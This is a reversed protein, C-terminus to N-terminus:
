RDIARRLLVQANAFESRQIALRAANVEGTAALEQDGAKTAGRIAEAYASAAEAPRGTQAYLNGLDNYSAALTVWDGVQAALERSRQLLPEALDLRRQAPDGSDHRHPTMELNGLAGSVRAILATDGVAEAKSLATRLDDRANRLYGQTRYMEGRRALAQAEIDSARNQRAFEIAESWARAAAAMDGARFATTGHELQRVAAERGQEGHAPAVPYFWAFASLLVTACALPQM